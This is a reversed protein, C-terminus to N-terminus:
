VSEARIESADMHEETLSGPEPHVHLEERALQKEAERFIAEDRDASGNVDEYNLVKLMMYLGTSLVAGLSPGVGEILEEGFSYVIFGIIGPFIELSSKRGL